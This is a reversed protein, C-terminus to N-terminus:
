GGENEVIRAALSALGEDDLRDIAFVPARAYGSFNGGQSRRYLPDYHRELLDSVLEAWHGDRVLGSWREVTERGRLEVLRELRAILTDPERTMCDYDRLLFGTRATAPADIRLCPAARLRELLPEPLTILGIRRSEAEIYVPRATDLAAMVKLLGSEFLKQPPQTTGPALGLVSGKHAALSELDIVQEGRRALHELLRSKGSGTPGAIVRLDLRAPLETLRDLVERRYSKYGGELQHADWGIQRFVTVFAGSRKGGRWCYILPRWDPGRDQFRDLLHRGINIAVLAAGRRKAVFPSVQKYLTGIEARQADDLAPCNIAGPVHDLAFEAPSRTDIIDDFDYLQDVRAIGAPRRAAAATNM